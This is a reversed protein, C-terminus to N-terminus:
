GGKLIRDVYTAANRFGDPWSPGYSILGGAQVFERSDYIGPVERRAPSDLFGLPGSKHTFLLPGCSMTGEAMQEAGGCPCACREPLPRGGYLLAPVTGSAGGPDNCGALPV